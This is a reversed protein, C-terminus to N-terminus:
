HLCILQWPPPWETVATPFDEEDLWGPPESLGAPELTGHGDVFQSLYEINDGPDDLKTANEEWAEDMEANDIAEYYASRDTCYQMSEPGQMFELIAHALKLTTECGKKGEPINLLKVLNALFKVWKPQTPHPAENCNWDFLERAGGQTIFGFGTTGCLRARARVEGDVDDISDVM